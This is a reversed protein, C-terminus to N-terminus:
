RTSSIRFSCGRRGDGVGGGAEAGAGVGATGGVLYSLDPEPWTSCLSQFGRASRTGERIAKRWRALTPKMVEPAYPDLEEPYDGGYGGHPRTVDKDVRPVQASGRLFFTHFNESLEVRANPQNPNQPTTPIALSRVGLPAPEESVFTNMCSKLHLRAGFLFTRARFPGLANLIESELKWRIAEAEKPFPFLRFSRFLM